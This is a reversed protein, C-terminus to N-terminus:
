GGRGGKMIRVTTEGAKQKSTLAAWIGRLLIAVILLGLMVLVVLVLWGAIAALLEWPNM